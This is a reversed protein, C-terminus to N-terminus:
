KGYESVDETLSITIRESQNGDAAREESLALRRLDMEQEHKQSQTPLEGLDRVVKTLERLLATVDLMAKTDVKDMRTQEVWQQEKVEGDESRTKEQKKLLHLHFQDPDQVMRSVRECLRTTTDMLTRMEEPMRGGKGGRRYDARKKAWGGVKAMTRIQALDVSYRQALLRQNVGDRVYAREMEEAQKEM